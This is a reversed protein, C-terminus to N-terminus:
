WAASWDIVYSFVEDSGEVAVRVTVKLALSQPAPFL